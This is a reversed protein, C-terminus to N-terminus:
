LKTKSLSVFFEEFDNAIRAKESFAQLEQSPHQSVFHCTSAHHEDLRKTFSDLVGAAKLASTTWNGHSSNTKTQYWETKEGIRLSFEFGEFDPLIGEFRLWDAKGTLVDLLKLVIIKAEYRNGQKDAIGGSYM